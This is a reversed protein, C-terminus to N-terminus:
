WIEMFQKKSIIGFFVGAGFIFEEKGDVIIKMEAPMVAPTKIIDHMKAFYSSASCLMHIFIQEKCEDVKQKSKKIQEKWLAEDFKVTESELDMYQKFMKAKLAELKTHKASAVEGEEKPRTECVKNFLDQLPKDLDQMKELKATIDKKQDQFAVTEASAVFLANYAEKFREIAEPVSWVIVKVKKSIFDIVLEEFHKKSKSLMNLEHLKDGFKADFVHCNQENPFEKVKYYNEEAGHAEFVNIVFEGLNEPKEVFAEWDLFRQTKTTMATAMTTTPATQTHKKKQFIFILKM